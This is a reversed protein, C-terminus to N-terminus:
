PIHVVFTEVFDDTGAARAQAIVVGREVDFRTSPRDADDVHVFLDDGPALSTLLRASATVHLEGCRGSRRANTEVRDLALKRGLIPASSFARDSFDSVQPSRDRLHLALITPDGPLWDYDNPKLDLLNASVVASSKSVVLGVNQELLFARGEECWPVGQAYFENEDEFFAHRDSTYFALYPGLDTVVPRHSPDAADIRAAIARYDRGAERSALRKAHMESVRTGYAACTITMAAGSALFAIHAPKPRLQAIKRAVSELTSAFVLAAFPTVVTMFREYRYYWFAHIGAYVCAALASFFVAGRRRVGSILAVCICAIYMYVIATQASVLISPFYKAYLDAETDFRFITWFPARLNEWAAPLLKIEGAHGFMEDIYASASRTGIAHQHLYAIHLSEPAVCLAFCALTLGLRRERWLRPLVVPVLAILLLCGEARTAVAFGALAAAFFADRANRERARRFLIARRMAALVLLTFLPESAPVSGWWMLLPNFVLLALALVRVSARPEVLRLFRFFTAGLFIHLICALVIFGSEGFARVPLALALSYGWFFKRDVGDNWPVSLGRGHALSQAKALYVYSDITYIKTSAALWALLMTSVGIM